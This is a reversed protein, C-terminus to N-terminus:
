IHELIMQWNRWDFAGLITVTRRVTEDTALAYFCTNNEMSIGLIGDEVMRNLANGVETRSRVEDIAHIIALTSFRGGPHLAFFRLVDLGCRDYIFKKTLDDTYTYNKVITAEMITM